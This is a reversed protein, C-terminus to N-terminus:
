VPKTPTRRLARGINSFAALVDNASKKKANVTCYYRSDERCSNTIPYIQTYPPM